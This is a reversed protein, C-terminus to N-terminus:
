CSKPVTKRRYEAPDPRPSGITNQHGFRCAHRCAGHLFWPAHYFSSNIRTYELVCM